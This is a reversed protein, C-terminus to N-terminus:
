MLCSTSKIAGYWDIKSKEDYASIEGDELFAITLVSRTYVFNIESQMKLGCESGHM